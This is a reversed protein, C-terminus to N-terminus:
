SVEEMPVEIVATSPTIKLLLENNVVFETLWTETICFVDLSKCYILSQFFHLKHVVSRANWMSAVLSLGYIYDHCPPLNSQLRVKQPLLVHNLFLLLLTRM